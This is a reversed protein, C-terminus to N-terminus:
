KQIFSIPQRTPSMVFESRAFDKQNPALLELAWRIHFNRGSYSYPGAPLRFQFTRADTPLPDQLVLSDVIGVDDPGPGQTFWILRLEIRGPPDDYKWGIVGRLSDGPSFATRNGDIQITLPNM